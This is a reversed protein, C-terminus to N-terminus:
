SQKGAGFPMESSKFDTKIEEYGYDLKQLTNNNVKYRNTFLLIVEREQMSFRVQKQSKKHDTPFVSFPSKDRHLIM